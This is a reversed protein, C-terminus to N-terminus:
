MLFTNQPTQPPTKSDLFSLFFYFSNEFTSKQPNYILDVKM